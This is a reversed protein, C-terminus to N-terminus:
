GIESIKPMLEDGFRRIFGVPDPNGPAPGVNIMGIGLQAYREVTKLYGGIDEFPDTLAGVTKRIEEADRGVADCHRNLVDIKHALGDADAVTSNWIDAYRAVLRLTKKEGDGGILIPPRRIPQPECITEALQYHKGRYPGNDESWMQGCIQLTEELMEFRRSLSPYSIGLAAHERDYWAAGLGLASRGASLVDLTSVTKALVGPYRYTVGTVLLALGITNTQGALFGLSTYGELFPDEAPRGTNEMQLFHDALTFLTAGAQEATKAADTLTPGLRTNDGPPFDIFHVGIEM